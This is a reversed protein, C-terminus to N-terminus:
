IRTSREALAGRLGELFEDDSVADSFHARYRGRPDVLYSIATHPVDYDASENASPVRRAFVRFAHQAADIQARTGTLGVVRPARESLYAQMVRPTDREPDVTVYVAQLEDALPGLSDLVRTLRALARPCVVKCHTFGFFVLLHKGRYSADTVARGHHDIGAFSPQIPADSTV